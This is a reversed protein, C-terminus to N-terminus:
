ANLEGGKENIQVIVQRHRNFTINIDMGELSLTTATYDKKYHELECEEEFDKLIKNYEKETIEDFISDNDENNKYYKYM